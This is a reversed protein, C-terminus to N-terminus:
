SHLDRRCWVVLVTTHQPVPSGEPRAMNNLLTRHTLLQYFQFTSVSLLTTFLSNPESVSDPKYSLRTKKKLVHITETAVINADRRFM